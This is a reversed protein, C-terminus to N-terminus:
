KIIISMDKIASTTNKQKIFTAIIKSQIIPDINTSQPKYDKIILALMLISLIVISTTKLKHFVFAYVKAYTQILEKKEQIQQLTLM